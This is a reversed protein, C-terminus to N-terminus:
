EIMLPTAVWRSTVGPLPQHLLHTACQAHLYHQAQHAPGGRRAAQQARGGRPAARQMHHPVHDTCQERPRSPPQSEIELALFAPARGIM